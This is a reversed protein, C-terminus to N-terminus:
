HLIIMIVQWNYWLVVFFRHLDGILFSCFFNNLLSNLFKLIWLNYISLADKGFLGSRPYSVCSLRSLSLSAKAEYPLTWLCCFLWLTILNVQKIISPPFVFLFELCIQAFLFLNRRFHHAPSLWYIILHLKDLLM